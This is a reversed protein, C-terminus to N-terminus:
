SRDPTKLRTRRRQRLVAGLVIALAAAVAVYPLSKRVQHKVYAVRERHLREAAAAFDPEPCERGFTAAWPVYPGQTVYRRYVKEAVPPDRDILWGTAHCLVAAFAQTRPPLADAAANALDVAVYRYHFRELPAARSQAVRQAEDSAALEQPVVLDKRPPRVDDKAEGPWNLDFDGDYVRYDPDLEYGILDIGDVRASRAAAYLARAREIRDGHTAAKRADVYAQAKAKLKPADFYALAEDYRQARLLRRALLQRLATAPSTPLGYGTDADSDSAQPAPAPAPPAAPVHADVFGKLEDLTLVREAVYATDNWYESAANYLHQMAQLYEGRSLALTGHEGEVRCQPKIAEYIMMQGNGWQEDAPFAKAAQAYAEAAKAADGDRLALKARVWWALGSTDKPALKAALDFRGSRYALAALRDAGKIQDLGAHEVAALFKGIKDPVVKPQATAGDVAGPESQTENLEDSRAFLYAVILRRTLADNVARQLRADDAVIARAVFLLSDRGSISNLAAQQAYLGIATADDGADLALKAEEGFSASAVGLPDAVGRLVATRTAEFASRATDAQHQAAATRGRLYQAWLGYHTREAEPLALVADFRAAAGAFDGHAFAAAGALYRRAEEPLGAAAAYAAQVNPASRAANALAQKEGWWGKEISDRTVADAVTDTTEVVPLSAPPTAALRLVEFNFAGEPLGTLTERRDRLLESPFDPGCAAVMAPALALALAGALERLKM